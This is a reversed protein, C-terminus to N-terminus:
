KEKLNDCQFRRDVEFTDIKIGSSSSSLNVNGTLSPIIRGGKRRSCLKATLLWTNWNFGVTCWVNSHLCSKSSWNFHKWWSSRCIFVLQGAETCTETLAVGRMMSLPSFLVDCLGNYRLSTQWGPLFVIWIVTAAQQQTHSNNLKNLEQQYKKNIKTVDRRIVVQVYALREILKVPIVLFFVRLQQDNHLM